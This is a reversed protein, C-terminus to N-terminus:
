VSAAVKEELYSRSTLDPLAPFRVRVELDTVLFESWKVMSATWVCVCVCVCVCMYVINSYVKPINNKAGLIYRHM